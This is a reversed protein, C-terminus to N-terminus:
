EIARESNTEVFDVMERNRKQGAIRQQQESIRQQQEAIRQQQEAIRQQQEAIIGFLDEVTENNSAYAIALQLWEKITIDHEHEVTNELKQTEVKLEPPLEIGLKKCRKQVKSVNSTFFTDLPTETPCIRAMHSNITLSTPSAPAEAIDAKGAM